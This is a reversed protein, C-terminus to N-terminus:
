RAVRLEAILNADLGDTAWEAQTPTLAVANGSDTGDARFSGVPIPGNATVQWYVVGGRAPTGAVCLVACYGRVLFGAVETLNPVNDTFGSNVSGSIGPVERINVGAFATAADGSPLAAGGTVYKLGLGFATPATAKLEIPEVNSEDPRTIDGAFGIPANKLYAVDITKWPKM